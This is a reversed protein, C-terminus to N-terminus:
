TESAVKKPRGVKRPEVIAPAAKNIAHQWVEVYEDGSPVNVNDRRHKTIWREIVIRCQHTLNQKEQETM